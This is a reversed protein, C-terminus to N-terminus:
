FLSARLFDSIKQQAEGPLGLSFIQRATLALFNILSACVVPFTGVAPQLNLFRFLPLIDVVLIHVNASFFPM